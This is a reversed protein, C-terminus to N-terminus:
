VADRRDFRDRPERLFGEMGPADAVIQKAGVITELRPLIRARAVNGGAVTKGDRSM